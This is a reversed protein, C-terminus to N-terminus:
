EDGAAIFEAAKMVVTFVTFIQISGGLNNTKNKEWEIKLKGCEAKVACHCLVRCVSSDFNNCRKFLLHILNENVNIILKNM